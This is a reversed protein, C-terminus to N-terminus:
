EGTAILHEIRAAAIKARTMPLKAKGYPTRFKTPWKDDYFLAGGNGNTWWDPRDLSDPLGLLAKAKMLNPKRLGNFLCAWGAICAVTGCAPIVQETGNDSPIMSGSRGKEIFDGMFFRRPEELIHKQIKRLLKVNLKKTSKM